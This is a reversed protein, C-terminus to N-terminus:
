QKRQEIGALEDHFAAASVPRHAPDAALASSVLRGLAPPVGPDRLIALPAPRLMAAALGAATGGEFPRRGVLAEHLVVGTAFVDAAVGAPEGFLLEPAMYAPTGPSRYGSPPTAVAERLAAVGFDSLKLQGESTILINQPKVDRHLVKRAHVAELARCLQMGLILVASAPLRDREALVRDLSTGEIYEMVLFRHEGAMGLDHTRVVNPHTVRRTLRVEDIARALQEPQAGSVGAPLLKLAVPEDLLRDHAQYVIGMGGSGLHRRLEYRGAVLDGTLRAGDPPPLIAGTAGTPLPLLTRLVGAEAQEVQSRERELLARKRALGWRYGGLDGDGRIVRHCPIVLAVPNTACARAVARASRPAGVAEAIETYSRTQGRPIMRLADWVRHQFTTARLDLPVNARSTKGDLQRLIERAWAEVGDADKLIRADPFSAQLETELAADTDGLRM